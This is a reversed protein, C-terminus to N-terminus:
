RNYKWDSDNQHGYEIFNMRVYGMSELYKAVDCYLAQGTWTVITECEVNINKIKTLDDGFGRLVDLTCGEVDIKCVDVRNINNEQLFVKGTKVQVQIKVADKYDIAFGGERDRLSSMGLHDCDPGNWNEVPHQSMMQNFSSSGNYDSLAFEFVKFNPYFGRIIACCVPNPDITYVRNAPINFKKALCNADHGDRSGIELVNQANEVWYFMRDYM